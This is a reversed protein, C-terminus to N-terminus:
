KEQIWATAAKITADDDKEATDNIVVDPTIKGLYQKKNRDATYNNALYLYAGTSLKFGANATTFGGTATGFLKANPKGVFCLATMEGSSATEHGTLVAIKLGPRKTVYPSLVKATVGNNVTVKGNKYAWADSKGNEPSIFFGLTGEGIIPGLGAIMPHMNGGNDHRLDVIWGAIQNQTDLEYILKQTKTAFATSATDSTSGFGPMWVYGINGPLLKATPQRPDDNQKSYSVANVKSQLFSHNDGAARLQSMIYGTLLQADDTTKLGGSLKSVASDIAPWNLKKTYISHKKILGTFESVFQKVEKSPPSNDFPVDEMLYDDFWATGEGFLYGGILIKKATSNIVVPLTYKVWSGDSQLPVAPSDSRQMSIIVGDKDKVQCYLAVSTNTSGEKIFASFRIIKLKSSAIDLPQWFMSYSSSGAANHLKLAGSGSHKVSEDIAITFANAPKFTWNAPMTALTDNKLDFGPNKIQASTNLFAIICCATLLKKM